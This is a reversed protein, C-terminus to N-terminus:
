WLSWGLEDSEVVKLSKVYVTGPEILTIQFHTFSKQIWGVPEISLFVNYVHGAWDIRMTQAKYDADIVVTFTDSLSFNGLTIVYGGYSPFAGYSYELAGHKYWVMATLSQGSGYAIWNEVILWPIDAIGVPKQFTTESHYKWYVPLWATWDNNVYTPTSWTAGFGVQFRNGSFLKLMGNEFSYNGLILEPQGVWYSEALVGIQGQDFHSEYVYSASSSFTIGAVAIIAVLLVAVFLTKQRAKNV